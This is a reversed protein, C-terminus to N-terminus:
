NILKSGILKARYLGANQAFHIFRKKLTKASLRQPSQRSPLTFIHFNFENFFQTRLLNTRNRRLRKPFHGILQYINDSRFHWAKLNRTMLMFPTMSMSIIWKRISNLMTVVVRVLMQDFYTRATMLVVMEINIVSIIRDVIISRM